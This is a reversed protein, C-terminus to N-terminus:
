KLTNKKREGGESKRILAPQFVCFVHEVVSEKGGQKRSISRAKATQHLYGSENTNRGQVDQREIVVAGHIYSSRLSM